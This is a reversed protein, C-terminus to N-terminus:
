KPQSQHDQDNPPNTIVYKNRHRDFTANMERAWKNVCEAEWERQVFLGMRHKVTRWDQKDDDMAPFAARALEDAHSKIWDKAWAM